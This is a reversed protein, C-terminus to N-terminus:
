IGTITCFAEPRYHVMAVRMDARISLTGRTFDFAHSDTASLTIGRKQYLHSFNRYDGLIATNQTQATTQLLPVGWLREPGAETPAGLIYIGDATRLLRIAQWDNPHIFIQSPETCGVTRVLDMGKYIADPTPDIGKAQTNINSVNNTGLLNPTVGNGVLIQSDLRQRLMFSLRSNIYEEIGAVDELQQMTVPIFVPLWEVVQTRETLVLAAEGILNAAAQATSEATEVASNTFTTEEMYRITESSTPIQPIRDIVAVPRQPDLEVRDLRVQEPAWGAGTRFLTKLDLDYAGTLLGKASEPTRMRDDMFTKYQTSEVFLRGISKTEEKQSGDGLQQQRSTATLLGKERLDSEKKLNEVVVVAEIRKGLDDVEKNLTQMFAVRAPTDDAALGNISKILSVDLKDGSEEWFGHLEKQKVGFEERLEIINDM